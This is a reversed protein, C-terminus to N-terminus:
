MLLISKFLSYLLIYNVRSDIKFFNSTSLFELNCGQISHETWEPNLGKRISDIKNQTGNQTLDQRHQTGNQTWDMRPQTGKLISDIRHQTGATWDIRLETWEPNLGNLTSDMQPQTGWEPNLVNPTSDRRPQTWELNLGNSISDMWPHTWEPNLGMRLKIWESLLGKRPGTSSDMCETCTSRVGFFM